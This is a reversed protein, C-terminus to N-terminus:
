DSTHMAAVWSLYVHYDSIVTNYINFDDNDNVVVAILWHSITVFLSISECWIVMYGNMTGISRNVRNNLAWHQEAMIEHSRFWVYVIKKNSYHNLKGCDSANPDNRNTLEPFHEHLTYRRNRMKLHCFLVFRKSNNCKFSIGLVMSWWLM